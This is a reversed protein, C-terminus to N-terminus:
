RGAISVKARRLHYVIDPTELKLWVKLFVKQVIDESVQHNKVGTMCLGFLKPAFENYVEEFGNISNIDWHTRSNRDNRM